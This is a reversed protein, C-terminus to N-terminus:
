QAQVTTSTERSQGNYEALVDVRLAAGPPLDALSRRAVAEGGWDTVVRDSRQGDPFDWVFTV